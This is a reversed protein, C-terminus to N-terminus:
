TTFGPTERSMVLGRALSAYVCAVLYQAPQLVPTLAPPLVLQQLAERLGSFEFAFGQALMKAASVRKRTLVLESQEGM